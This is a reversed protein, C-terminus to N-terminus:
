IRTVTHTYPFLFKCLTHTNLLLSSRFWADASLELDLACVRGWAVGGGFRWGCVPTRLSAIPDPARLEPTLFPISLDPACIEEM